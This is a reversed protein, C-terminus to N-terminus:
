HTYSVAESYRGESSEIFSNREPTDELSRRVLRSLAKKARENFVEGFRQASMSSPDSFIELFTAPKPGQGKPHITLPYLIVFDIDGSRRALLHNISSVQNM